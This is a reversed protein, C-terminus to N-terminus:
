LGAICFVSFSRCDSSLSILFRKETWGRTKNSNKREGCQDKPNM